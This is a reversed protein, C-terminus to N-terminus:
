FKYKLLDMDREYLKEVIEKSTRNYLEKYDKNETKMFNLHTLAKPHKKLLNFSKRSIIKKGESVNDFPLKSFPINMKETISNFDRDLSEFRGVFDVLLNENDDFIFDTQPRFFWYEKEFYEPLYRNVFRNFSVLNTFGRFKYFSVVRAWPNRIMSFKFYEKFERETLYAFKLYDETTLHALRQPGKNPNDNPCLLYNKGDSFRNKELTSLLYNEISQGATKPIHVFISKYEPILM